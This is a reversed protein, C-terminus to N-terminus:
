HRRPRLAAPTQRQNIAWEGVEASAEALIDVFPRCLRVTLAVLAVGAWILWQEVSLALHKEDIAPSHFEGAKIRSYIMFVQVVYIAAAAVLGLKVLGWLIEQITVM